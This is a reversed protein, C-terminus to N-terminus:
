KVKPKGGPLYMLNLDMDYTWPAGSNKWGNKTRKGHNPSQPDNVKDGEFGDTISYVNKFGAKALKNVCKASRGGSRCTVLITDTPKFQKKVLAVFKPNEALLYEKEKPDWKYSPLNGPLNVAMPAHGVFMYEEPTRCDIIKVKDPDKQWMAYAEKATVYLGLDTQKKKPVEAPKKEPAAVAAPQKEATAAPPAPKEPAQAQAFLSTAFTLALLCCLLIVAIKRTM